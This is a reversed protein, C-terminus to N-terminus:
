GILPRESPYRIYLRQKNLALAAVVTLSGVRGIFMVAAVTLKAGDTLFPTIGTTLGVTAFGSSVEFLVRGLGFDQSTSQALVVGTAVIVVFLSVLTVAVALRLVETGIRKGFAEIDRRGRAESWIALLLVALTTVRIGGATGGSGAGIFMLISELLWTQQHMLGHDLGAFGGTRQNFSVFILQWVKTSGHFAGLTKPNTWEFAALLGVSFVQVIGITVLTLKTHLSWKRPRQWSRRLDLYIPYGLAGMFSCVPLAMRFLADGPFPVIGGADPQLGVNNFASVSYFVAHGLARGVPFDHALLRVFVVLSIVAETTISVILITRLLGKVDGLSTAKTEDAALLRTTLGLRRSVALGLLAAMTMIGFGGVMMAIVLVTMGFPTWYTGNDVTTLGAVTTASTAMFFADILPPRRGSATAFPQYLLMTFFVIVLAFGGLALRAPHQLAVRDLQDDVWERVAARTTM